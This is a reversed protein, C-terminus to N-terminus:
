RAVLGPRVAQPSVPNPKIYGDRLIKLLNVLDTEESSTHGLDGM